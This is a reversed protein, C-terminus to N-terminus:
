QDLSFKIKKYDVLSMVRTVLMNYGKFDYTYMTQSISEITRNKLWLVIFLPEIMFFLL